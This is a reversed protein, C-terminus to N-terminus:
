VRRRLRKVGLLVFAALWGWSGGGNNCNIPFGLIPASGVCTGTGVGPPTPQPALGGNGSGNNAMITANPTGYGTPGNYGAGAECFYSDGTGNSGSTVPYFAASHTYAYSPDEGANDTTAYIAAVLPSSASTGGYVSWGTNGTGYTIYVAVGTAPDAVAAVDAEMRFACSPDHQWAPKSIYSSCGSGGEDWASESWGRANISTTNRTLSTGGVATVFASSAPYQTGYGSDGTSAFISVGPHNFYKEADLVTSDEGGGYSNSVIKAGANVAADVATGLDDMSTSNAEVLVISCSPCAASVMDLDLSIEAAWGADATPLPSTQGSQNIKRFCGNATTCPPLGFTQRYVNFDAEANPDDNADVIGVTVGAGGNTTINYAARLDNAGFGAPQANAYVQGGNNLRVRAFCRAHGPGDDACVSQNSESLQATVTVDATAGDAFALSCLLTSALVVFTSSSRM